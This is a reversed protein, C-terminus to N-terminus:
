IDTYKKLLTKLKEKHEISMGNFSLQQLIESETNSINPVQTKVIKADNLVSGLRTKREIVIPSDSGNVCVAFVNGHKNENLLSPEFQVGEPLEFDPEFLFTPKRGVSNITALRCPVRVATKPPVSVSRSSILEGDSEDKKRVSVTGNLGDIQFGQKRIIDIGIICHENIDEAIIFDGEFKLQGFKVQIKSIGLTKIEKNNVNCLIVNCHMLRSRCQVDLSQFVNVHM